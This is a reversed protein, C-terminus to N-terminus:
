NVGVRVKISDLLEEVADLVEMTSIEHMCRAHYPCVFLKANYMNLCPSCPLAKYIVRALGIPGYFEPSEPGFLAVIPTGVADAIHMPGSDNTILLVSRELLAVLEGLSLDGASNIIYSPFGPMSALARGVYEREDRNGIFFFRRAENRRLLERTLEVFREPNWRRELSAPGANINVCIIESANGRLDLKSEMLDREESTAHLRPRDLSGNTDIGFPELQKLFVKAVHAEHDLPILHTLNGRRWRTPLDFGVRVPAGSIASLFTSFKSFFELDFVVDVSNRFCFLAVRLTDLVFGGLSATSITLRTSLQPIRGLLERNEAFTLFVIRAHPLHERLVSLFPSSLLVSGMGFFKIVLVTRWLENPSGRRQRDALGVWIGTLWCLPVGLFRDVNRMTKINM